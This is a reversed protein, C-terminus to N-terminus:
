EEIGYRRRLAAATTQAHRLREEVSVRERRAAETEPKEVPPQDQDQSAM